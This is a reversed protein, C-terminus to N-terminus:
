KKQLFLCLKIQHFKSNLYNFQGGRGGDVHKKPKSNKFSPLKQQSFFPFFLAFEFFFTFFLSSALFTPDFIQAFFINSKIFLSKLIIIIIEVNLVYFIGVDFKNSFM